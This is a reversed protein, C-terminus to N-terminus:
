GAEKTLSQLQSM